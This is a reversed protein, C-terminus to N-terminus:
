IFGAQLVSNMELFILLHAVSSTGRSVKNSFFYHGTYQGNTTACIVCSRSHLIKGEKERPRNDKETREVIDFDGTEVGSGEAELGVSSPM